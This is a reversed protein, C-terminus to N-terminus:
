SLASRWGRPVDRPYEITEAGVFTALERLARALDRGTAATRRVGPEAHVAHVLLRRGPRDAAADVRGVLRDNALIPMAYYGFRRKGRPVYIEMRYNFGFVLETRDRDIILNDFPSLLTTRPEWRDARIDELLPVDEVHVYWPGPVEVGDDVVRVTEVEGKSRLRELIEPLGPYRGATFHREIDRRRAIGLARLSRRAARRVIETESLERKPTWRPLCRDALHWWKILGERRWVMVKGQTWLVDIMREVNRGTTWGGSTWGHESIDEIDRARLPGKADLRHLVHRRLPENRELWDATRRGHSYRRTPYRRMTLHHIQYDETLVISARHAWYEFLSRDEFLLRDLLARDFPGLRSWLVLLPSRALVSIPDLQLCGLDRVVDLVAAADVPDPRPGRLRQRAVALTRVESLTVTRIAAPV